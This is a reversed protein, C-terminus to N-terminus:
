RNKQRCLYEAWWDMMKQRQPIYQAHNYDARVSNSPCHALQKEIWDSNFGNENLITSATGRFGHVTLKGKYGMRYLACLMIHEGMINGYHFLDPFIYKDSQRMGRIEQLIELARESLPTVHPKSMKMREAPVRWLKKEWDIESWLAGRLEKTRVMTLFIFELALKTLVHGNYNALRRFFEPIENEELTPNNTVKHTKLAGRLDQAIDREVQGTAVAYRFIQGSMCLTRSAIDLAGRAEIKRIVALLEVPKIDTIPKDGLFPLLNKEARQKITKRYKPSWIEGRDRIWQELVAKFTGENLFDKKLKNLRKEISPDIGDEIEDKAKATEIRADSLSMEPLKGLCLTKEKGGFRYRMRWLKTGKPSVLLYLGEADYYKKSKEKPGISRVKVSSLM